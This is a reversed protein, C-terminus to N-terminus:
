ARQRMNRKKKSSLKLKTKIKSLKAAAAEMLCGVAFVASLIGWIFFIVIPIEM